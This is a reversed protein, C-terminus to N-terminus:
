TPSTVTVQPIYRTLLRLADSSKNMEADIHRNGPRTRRMVDDVRRSRSRAVAQFDGPEAAVDDLASGPQAHGRGAVQRVELASEIDAILRAPLSELDRCDETSRANV